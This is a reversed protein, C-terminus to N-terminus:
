CWSSWRSAVSSSSSASRVGDRVAPLTSRRGLALLVGLPFCALMSVSAILLTLMMGGWTTGAWRRRDPVAARVFRCSRGAAVYSARRGSGRAAPRAGLLRGVVVAASCRRRRRAVADGHRALLLLVLLLALAPWYRAVVTASASASRCSRCRRRRRRDGGGRRRTTLSAPSSGPSPPSRSSCSPSSGGCTTADPVPRGHLPTLNTRVVEWRGTAVVFRVARYLAWGVVVGAVVTMATDRRNRFLNRGHGPSRGTM